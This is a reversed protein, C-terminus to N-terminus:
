VSWIVSVPRKGSGINIIQHNIGPATAAAIMASVVDDVYVYDRTQSGDGHMVLTGGRMTQRLYNPVVPAHSPPLHQGPGFANFGATVRDRHGM